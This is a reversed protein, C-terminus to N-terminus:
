RLNVRGASGRGTDMYMPKWHRGTGTGLLVMKVTETFFDCHGRGVRCSIVSLTCLDLGLVRCAISPGFVEKGLSAKGQFWM